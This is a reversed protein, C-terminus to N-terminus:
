TNLHFSNGKVCFPELTTGISELILKRATVCFSNKNQKTKNQKKTKTKTQKNTKTKTKTKTQNKKQQQKSVKVLKVGGDESMRKFFFPFFFFVDAARRSGIAKAKLKRNARHVLRPHNFSVNLLTRM